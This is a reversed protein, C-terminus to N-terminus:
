CPWEVAGDVRVLPVLFHRAVRQGNRSFQGCDRPTRTEVPEGARWGRARLMHELYPFDGPSMAAGAENIHWHSLHVPPVCADTCLDHTDITWLPVM